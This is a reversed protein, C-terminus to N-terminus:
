GEPKPSELTKWTRNRIIDNISSKCIGFREVLAMTSVGQAALKRIEDVQIQTLKANPHNERVRTSARSNNIAQGTTPNTPISM